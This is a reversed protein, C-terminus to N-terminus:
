TSKPYSIRSRTNVSFAHLVMHAVFGKGDHLAKGLLLLFILGWWVKDTPFRLQNVQTIAGNGIMELHTTQIMGAVSSPIM